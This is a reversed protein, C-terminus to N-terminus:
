RDLLEYPFPEHEIHVGARIWHWHFPFSTLGLEQVAIARHHGDSVYIDHWRENVCLLIPVELGDAEISEKLKDVKQRDKGQAFQRRADDWKRFDTPMIQRDNLMSTRMRGRYRM